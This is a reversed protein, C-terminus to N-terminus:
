GWQAGSNDRDTNEVAVSETCYTCYLVQIGVLWFYVFCAEDLVGAATVATLARQEGPRWTVGRAQAFPGKDVM